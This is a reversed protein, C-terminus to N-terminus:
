HTSLSLLVNAPDCFFTATQTRRTAAQHIAAARQGLRELGELGELDLQRSM